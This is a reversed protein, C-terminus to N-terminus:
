GAVQDLYAKAAATLRKNPKGPSTIAKFFLEGDRQSALIRESEAILEEAKEQM